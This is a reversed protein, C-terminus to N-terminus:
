VKTYDWQTYTGEIKGGGGQQMTSASKGRIECDSTYIPYTFQLPYPRINEFEVCEISNYDIFMISAEGRGDLELCRGRYWADNVNNKAICLENLRPTYRTTSVNQAYKQIDRTFKQIKVAYPKTTCSIVGIHMLSNDMVVLEINDGSPLLVHKLYDKFCIENSNLPGRPIGLNKIAANFNQRMSEDILEVMYVGNETILDEPEYKLYVNKNLYSYMLEGIEETMYCDPVDKLIIPLAYRPIRTYEDPAEYLDKLNLTDVNGYDIYAVDVDENETDNLIMVRCFQDRFKSIFVQGCRPKGIATKLTEGLKQLGTVTKCFNENDDYDKSRIFVVNSKMIATITVISGSRPVQKILATYDSKEQNEVSRNLSAHRVVGINDKQNNDNAAKIKDLQLSRRPRGCIYRHKEWDRKQCEVGCYYGRCRRCVLRCERRCLICQNNKLRTFEEKTHTGVEESTKMKDSVNIYAGGSDTCASTNDKNKVDLTHVDGNFIFGNQFNGDLTQHAKAYLQPLLKESSLCTRNERQTSPTTLPLKDDPRISASTTKKKKGVAVQFGLMNNELSQCVAEADVVTAFDVFYWGSKNDHRVDRVLGNKSCIDRLTLKTMGKPVNKFVLYPYYHGEKNINPKPQAGDVLNGGTVSIYQNFEAKKLNKEM